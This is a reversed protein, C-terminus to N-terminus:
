EDLNKVRLWNKVSLLVAKRLREKVPGFSSSDGMWKVSGQEVSIIGAGLFDLEDLPRHVKEAYKGALVGHNPAEKFPLLFILLHNQTRLLLFLHKGNKEVKGKM